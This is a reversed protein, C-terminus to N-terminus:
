RDSLLKALREELVDVSFGEPGRDSRYRARGGAGVVYIRDPYADYARAVRDEMGDLGIPIGTATEERCRQAAAKREDLTRPDMVQKSDGLMARPTDTPHAERIYVVLFEARERYREFV